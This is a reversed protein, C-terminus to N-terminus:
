DVLYAVVIEIIFLLWKRINYDAFFIPVRIRQAWFFDVTSLESYLYRFNSFRFYLESYYKCFINSIINKIVFLSIYIYTRCLGRILFLTLHNEEHRDFLSLLVWLQLSFIIQCVTRHRIWYICNASHCLIEYTSPNWTMVLNWHPVDVCFM